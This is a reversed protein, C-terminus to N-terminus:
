NNFKSRGFIMGQNIIWPFESWSDYTNAFLLDFGNSAFLGVIDQPVIGWQWWDHIDREIKLQQENFLHHSAFWKRLGEENNNFYVNKFYWDLGYNVFRITKKSKFWNQNYIIVTDTLPLWDTIFQNWDPAVQHLLIDFMLLADVKGVSKRVLESGLMGQLLHINPQSNARDITLPTIYQDVIYGREFNSGCLERAYFAYGGNVGWCSGLDAFSKFPRLIQAHDILQAKHSLIPNDLLM